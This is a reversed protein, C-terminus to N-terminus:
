LAGKFNPAADIRISTSEVSATCNPPTSPSSRTESTTSYEAAFLRLFDSKVHRKQTQGPMIATGLSLCLVPFNRDRFTQNVTGPCSQSQSDFVMGAV